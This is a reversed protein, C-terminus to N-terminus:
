SELLVLFHHAANRVLPDATRDRIRHLMAILNRRESQVGRVTPLDPAHSVSYAGAIRDPNPHFLDRGRIRLLPEVFGVSMDIAFIRADAMASENEATAHVTALVDDPFQRMAGALRGLAERERPARATWAFILAEPGSQECRRIYSVAWDWRPAPHGTRLVQATLRCNNRTHVDVAESQGALAPPVIAACMIALVTFPIRMAIEQFQFHM